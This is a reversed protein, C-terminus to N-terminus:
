DKGVIRTINQQQKVLDYNFPRLKITAIIKLREKLAELDRSSIHGLIPNTSGSAYYVYKGKMNRQTDLKIWSPTSLGSTQWDEMKVKLISFNPNNDSHTLAFGYVDTQSRSIILLPHIENKLPANKDVNTQYYNVLVIDGAQLTNFDAQSISENLICNEEIDEILADTFDM